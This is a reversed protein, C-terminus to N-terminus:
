RTNKLRTDETRNKEHFRRSTINILRTALQQKSGRGMDITEDRSILVIKNYDSGFVGQEGQIQNAAILDINKSKLKLTANKVTDESEAAFGVTFPPDNSAAVDALIDPNRTLELTLQKESKKIKHEKVDLPRYDAVAAVAIFIDVDDIQEMVKRHMEVASLVDIRRIGAPTQLHVPGSVLTVNAGKDAAATAIAYGMKGSSHNSIGRVPDIAEWTPGATIVIKIDQLDAPQKSSYVKDAIEDPETMRGIGTEGCAQEGFAPGIIQCGRQKLIEINDRTAQHEWMTPNMAPAISIEAKSALCLTSLLDDALGNALKAIFHATAPTILIKEAWRALEIHGMGSEADSGLLQLSVPHGSVAQMTLPTIFSCAAATMVVRVDAGRESLRRVLDASKYAAIGGTIGIIIRKDKPRNM